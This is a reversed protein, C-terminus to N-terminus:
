GYRTSFYSLTRPKNERFCNANWDFESTQKKTIRNTKDNHKGMDVQISIYSDVDKSYTWIFWVM